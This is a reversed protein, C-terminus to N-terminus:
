QWNKPYRVAGPQIDFKRCLLEVLAEARKIQSDTPHRNQGDVIICIRIAQGDGYLNQEGAISQQEQWNDTSQIQGDNGGRGNCIVFHCDDNEFGFLTSQLVKRSTSGSVIGSYYIEVSNWRGSFQTARSSVAKEVPDLDYYHSLCFAGASPPNNGLAILVIAGATMSALLAAFLKAHRSQVSM